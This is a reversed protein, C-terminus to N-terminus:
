TQQTSLGMCPAGNTASSRGEERARSLDLGSGVLPSALLAKLIGGKKPPKGSTAQGIAM